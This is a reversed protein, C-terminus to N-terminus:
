LGIQSCSTTASFIHGVNSYDNPNSSSYSAVLSPDACQITSIESLCTQLQTVNVTKLSDNTVDILTSHNAYGLYPALSAVESVLNSCRLSDLSEGCDELTECIQDSVLKGVDNSKDSADSNPISNNGQNTKVGPNGTDTGCASLTFTLLLLIFIKM